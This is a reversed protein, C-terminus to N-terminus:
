SPLTEPLELARLKIQELALFLENKTVSDPIIVTVGETIPTGGTGGTRASAVGTSRVVSGKQPFNTITYVDLAM